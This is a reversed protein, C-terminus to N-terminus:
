NVLKLNLTVVTGQDIESTIALNGGLLEARYQMGVLGLKDSNVFGSM